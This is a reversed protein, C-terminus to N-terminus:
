IKVRLYSNKALTIYFLHIIVKDLVNRIDYLISFLTKFEDIAEELYIAFYTYDMSCYESLNLYVYNFDLRSSDLISVETTKHM